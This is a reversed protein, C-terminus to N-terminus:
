IAQERAFDGEREEVWAMVRWEATPAIKILLMEIDVQLCRLISVSWMKHYLLSTYPRDTFASFSIM